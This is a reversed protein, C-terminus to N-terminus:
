SARALRGESMGGRLEQRRTEVQVGRTVVEGGIVVTVNTQSQGGPGFPNTGAASAGAGAGGGGGGASGKGGIKDAGLARATVGLAVGVGAM